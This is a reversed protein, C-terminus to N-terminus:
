DEEKELTILVYPKKPKTITANRLQELSGGQQVFLREDLKSTTGRVETITATGDLHISTAGVQEFYGGILKAEKELKVKASEFDAKLKKYLKLRQLLKTRLAPEIEVETTATTTVSTQQKLAM